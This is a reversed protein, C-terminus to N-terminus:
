PQKSSISERILKNLKLVFESAMRRMTPSRTADAAFNQYEERIENLRSIILKRPEENATEQSPKPGNSQMDNSTMSHQAKHLEIKLQVIAADIQAMKSTLQHRESQLKEFEDQPLRGRGGLLYNCKTLEGQLAFKKASLEAKKMSLEKPTYQTDMFM